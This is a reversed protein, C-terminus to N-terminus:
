LSPTEFASLFSPRQVSFTSCGFGSSEEGSTHLAHASGGGDAALGNPMGKAAAGGDKQESPLGGKVRGLEEPACELTM